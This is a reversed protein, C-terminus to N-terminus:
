EETAKNKKSRTRKPAEVNAEEVFPAKAGMEPLKEGAKYLVGNIKMTHTAVM